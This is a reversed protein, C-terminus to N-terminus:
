CSSQNVFERFGPDPIPLSIPGPCSSAYLKCRLIFLTYERQFLVMCFKPHLFHIQITMFLSNKSPVHKM